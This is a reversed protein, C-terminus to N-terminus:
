AHRPYQTQEDRRRAQSQGADGWNQRACRPRQDSQRVRHITTSRTVTGLCIFFQSGASNPDASRAMSLVGRVHPRDNFEAPITYGPGGTGMAHKTPPIKRDASRRGPDHLGAHHSSVRHRRLLRRPGTKQFKSPRRLWKLGFSSSWKAMAPRSCPWKRKIKDMPKKEEPKSAEQGRVNALGLSCVLLCCFLTPKM